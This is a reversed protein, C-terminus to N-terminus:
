YIYQEKRKETFSIYITRKTKLLVQINDKRKETFSIYITRKM